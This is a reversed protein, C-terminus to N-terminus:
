DEHEQDEVLRLHGRGALDPSEAEGRILKLQPRGLENFKEIWYEPSGQVEHVCRPCVPLVRVDIRAKTPSQWEVSRQPVPMLEGCLGCRIEVEIDLREGVGPKHDLIGAAHVFHADDAPAVWSVTGLVDDVGDLNTLVGSNEGLTGLVAASPAIVDMLKRDLAPCFSAPVTPRMQDLLRSYASTQEALLSTSYAKGISDHLAQTASIAPLATIDKVMEAFHKAASDMTTLQNISKVQEAFHKTISDMARTASTIGKVQEAFNKTISDMARTASTIGAWREDPFLKAMRDLSSFQDHLARMVGSVASFREEPFLKAMRGLEKITGLVAIEELPKKEDAMRDGRPLICGRDSLGKAILGM